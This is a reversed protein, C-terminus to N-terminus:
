FSCTTYGSRSNCGWITEYEGELIKSTLRCIGRIEKKQKSGERIDFINKVKEMTRPSGMLAGKRNNLVLQLMFTVVNMNCIYNVKERKYVVYIVIPYRINFSIKCKKFEM